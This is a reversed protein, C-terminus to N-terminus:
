GYGLFTRFYEGYHDCDTGLIAFRYITHPRRMQDCVGPSTPFVGAKDTPISLGSGCGCVGPCHGPVSCVTVCDIVVSKM